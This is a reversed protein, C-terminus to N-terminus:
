LINNQLFSFSHYIWKWFLDDSRAVGRKRLKLETPFFFFKCSALNKAAYVDLTKNSARHLLTIAYNAICEDNKWLPFTLCM